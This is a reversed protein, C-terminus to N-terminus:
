PSVEILAARPPNYARKSVAQAWAEPEDIMPYHGWGPFVRLPWKLRLAGETWALERPTVIRDRGGWWVEIDRVAAPTQRLGEDLERLLRPTLWAFLDPLAACRAYGDFFASQMEVSPPRTFHRRVFRRQFMRTSFVRGVLARAFRRRMLRPMLRRELGWLVPAQLILPVDRLEGRVRLCLAILGGIGTAYVLSAEAAAAIGDSVTRLFVELDAARRRGEFGPYGVDTLDIGDTALVPRVAAVRAACHGNGGLFVVRRGPM